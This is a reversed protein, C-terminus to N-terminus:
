KYAARPYTRFSEKSQDPIEKTWESGKFNNPMFLHVFTLVELWRSVNFILCAVIYGVERHTCEIRSLKM